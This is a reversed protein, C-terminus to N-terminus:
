CVSKEQRGRGEQALVEGITFLQGYESIVQTDNDLMAALASDTQTVVCGREVGGWRAHLVEYDGKFMRLVDGLESNALTLEGVNAHNVFITLKTHAPSGDLRLSTVPSKLAYYTTSM